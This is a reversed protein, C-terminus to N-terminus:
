KKDDERYDHLIFEFDIMLEGNRLYLTGIGSDPDVMDLLEEYSRYNLLEEINKEWKDEVFCENDTKYGWIGVIDADDGLCVDVAYKDYQEKQGNIYTEEDIEEILKSEEVSKEIQKKVESKEKESQRTGFIRNSGYASELGNQHHYKKVGENKVIREDEEDSDDLTDGDLDGVLDDQYKDKIKQIREEAHESYREIMEDARMAETKKVVVYTVCSGIGAGFLTGLGFIIGKKM